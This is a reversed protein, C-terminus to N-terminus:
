VQPLDHAERGEEETTKAREVWDGLLAKVHQRAKTFLEDRARAPDAGPELDAAYQIGVDRSKVKPTGDEFDYPYAMTERYAVTICVIKHDQPM